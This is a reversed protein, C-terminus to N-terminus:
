RSCMRPIDRPICQTPELQFITPVSAPISHSHQVTTLEPTVPKFDEPEISHEFDHRRYRSVFHRAVKHICVGVHMCVCLYTCIYM